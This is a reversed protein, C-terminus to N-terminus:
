HILANNYAYMMTAKVLLKATRNMTKTFAYSGHKTSVSFFGLNCYCVVLSLSLLFYKYEKRGKMRVYTSNCTRIM